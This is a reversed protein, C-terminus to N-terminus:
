IGEIGLISFGEKYKRKSDKLVFTHVHSIQTAVKVDTM